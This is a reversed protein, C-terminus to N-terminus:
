QPSYIGHSLTTQRPQNGMKLSRCVALHPKLLLQWPQGNGLNATFTDQPSM